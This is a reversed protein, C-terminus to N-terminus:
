GGALALASLSVVFATLFGFFESNLVKWPLDRFSVPASRPASFVLEGTPLRHASLAIM